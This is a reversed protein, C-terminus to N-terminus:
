SASYVNKPNPLMINARLTLINEQLDIARNQAEKSKTTMDDVYVEINQGIQAKLVKYVM